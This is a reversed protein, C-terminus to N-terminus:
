CMINLHKLFDQNSKQKRSLKIEGHSIHQTKAIPSLLYKTNDPSSFYLVLLRLLEQEYIISALNFFPSKESLIHYGVEGITREITAQSGMQISGNWEIHKPIHILQFLSLRFQSVHEPNQGIYNKEFEELFKKILKHLGALDGSSKPGIKM